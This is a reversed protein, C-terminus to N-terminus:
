YCTIDRHAPHQLPLGLVALEDLTWTQSFWTCPGEEWQIFGGIGVLNGDARADAAALVVPAAPPKQLPFYLPPLDCWQLWFELSERSSASLKRRTTSPNTIRMWIRKSTPVKALDRKCSLAVHRAELLRSGPTIATGPPNAVFVLSDNLFLALGPWDGPAISHNTALPRNADAYLPQLWPKFSRFLKCLWQLLGLIKDLTRRHVHRGSLAEQLLRKLKLCKDSPVCFTGSGFGFHWGIWVIGRGLQLKAYSIPIGFMTCFALVHCSFLAIVDEDQVLLFDDVYGLLAHRLWIWLHLIRLFFSGLRQFWLASFNAGFPCVQYFLYRTGFGDASPLTVGLLGQDAPRVRVTKHASKVDLAFGALKGDHMRLPFCERVDDVSPLAFTEPIFCSPNTGCVTSDVVLRPKKGPASVISMKGIALKSGFRAQASALSDLELLWGKDLEEEVLARLTEPDAEASSWNGHCIAIEQAFPHGSGQPVLVNSLPIDADFGTPVGSRLCPFLTTDRDSALASLLQM